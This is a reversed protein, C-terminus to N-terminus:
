NTWPPLCVCVRSSSDATNVVSFSSIATKKITRQMSCNPGNHALFFFYRCIPPPSPHSSAPDDPRTKEHRLNIAELTHVILVAPLFPAPGNASTMDDGCCVCFLPPPLNKCPLM